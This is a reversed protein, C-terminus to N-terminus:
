FIGLVFQLLESLIRGSYNPKGVRGKKRGSGRLERGSRRLERVNREM